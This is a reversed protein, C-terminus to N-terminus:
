DKNRKMKYNELYKEDEDILDRLKAKYEIHHRLEHNILKTLRDFMKKDSYHAYREMLSGYYIIIRRIHGHRQYEGLILLDDDVSEEHFKVKEDLVVGGNLDDFLTVDISDVIINLMEHIKDIDFSM